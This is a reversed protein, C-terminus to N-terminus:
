LAVLARRSRQVRAESAARVVIRYDAARARDLLRPLARELPMATLHYFGIETM